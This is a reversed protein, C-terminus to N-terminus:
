RRDEGYYDRISWLGRGNWVALHLLRAELVLTYSCENGPGGGGTLGGESM